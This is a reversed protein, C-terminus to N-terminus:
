VKLPILLFDPLFAQLVYMIVVSAATLNIGMGLSLHPTDGASFSM